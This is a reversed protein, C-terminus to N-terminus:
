GSLYLIYYFHHKQHKLNYMIEVTMDSEIKIKLIDEEVIIINVKEKSIM